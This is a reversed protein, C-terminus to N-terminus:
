DAALDLNTLDVSFQESAGAGGAFAPADVRLTCTGNAIVPISEHLLSGFFSDDDLRCTRSEVPCVDPTLSTIWFDGADPVGCLWTGELAVWRARVDIRPQEGGTFRYSGGDDLDWDGRAIIGSLWYDLYVDNLEEPDHVRVDVSSSGDALSVTVTGAGVPFVSPVAGLGLLVASSASGMSGDREKLEVGESTSVSLAPREINMPWVVQGARDRARVRVPLPRASAISSPCGETLEVSWEFEEAQILLSYVLPVDLPEESCGSGSASSLLGRVEVLSDGAEEVEVAVVSPDDTQTVRADGELVEISDISFEGEPAGCELGFVSGLKLSVASPAETGLALPVAIESVLPEETVGELSYILPDLVRVGRISAPIELPQVLPVDALGDPCELDSEPEDIKEPADEGVDTPLPTETPEDTEVRGCAVALCLGVLALPRAGHHSLSGLMCSHVCAVMRAGALPRYTQFWDPLQAVVGPDSM